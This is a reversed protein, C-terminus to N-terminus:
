PAPSTTMVDVGGIIHSTLSGRFSFSATNKAETATKMPPKEEEAQPGLMRHTRRCRQVERCSLIYIM